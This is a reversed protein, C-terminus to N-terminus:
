HRSRSPERRRARDQRALTQLGEILLNLAAGAERRMKRQDEATAIALAAADFAGGLITILPEFSEVRAEGAAVLAELSDRLLGGSRFAPGLSNQIERRTKQSLIGPGDILLIRYISPDTCSDLYTERGLRLQEWIEDGKSAAAVIKAHVEELARRYVSRFLDEKDRFHHYLAGRAVGAGRLVDDISTEAFGRKAFLNRATKIILERTENAQQARLGLARNKVIKPM